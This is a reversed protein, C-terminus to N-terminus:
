EFQAADRAKARTKRNLHRHARSSGRCQGKQDRAQELMEQVYPSETSHRSSLSSKQPSRNGRLLSKLSTNTQNQYTSPTTRQPRFAIKTMAMPGHPKSMKLDTLLHDSQATKQHSSIKGDHGRVTVRYVNM